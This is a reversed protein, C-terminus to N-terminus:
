GHRPGDWAVRAYYTKNIEGTSRHHQKVQDVWYAAQSYAAPYISNGDAHMEYACPYAIPPLPEGLNPETCTFVKCKDLPGGCLEIVFKPKDAM